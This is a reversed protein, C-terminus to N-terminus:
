GTMRPRAPCPRSLAPSSGQAARGRIASIEGESHEKQRKEARSIGDRMWAKEQKDAHASDCPFSIVFSRSNTSLEIEPKE